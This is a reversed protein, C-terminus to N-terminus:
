SYLEKMKKVVEQKSYLEKWVTPAKAYLMDSNSNSIIKIGLEKARSTFCEYQRDTIFLDRTIEETFHFDVRKIAYTAAQRMTKGELAIYASDPEQMYKIDFANNHDFLPHCGTIQMTKTDFFFGWNMMHRDRNVILYDVIYMKYISDSDIEMISKTFDIKNVNCYAYYEMAPLINVDETSMCKCKCIFEGNHQGSLYTVHEVNCRDLINSCMVEIRSETSDSAGKKYLYLGDQERMWAKAYAGQTTLEPTTLSGQLTLSTGHLAVQTVIENLPNDRLSVDSWKSNDNDLKVWYDDQLSVARCILATNFKVSDCQTQPIRLLNLIWKANKRSLPLTRNCMWSVIADYWRRYYVIDSIGDDRELKGRLTWPLLNDNHIVLSITDTNFQLVKSDKFMLVLDSYM